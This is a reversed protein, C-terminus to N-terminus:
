HWAPLLSFTLLNFSMFQFFASSGITVFLFYSLRSGPSNKMQIIYLFVTGSKDPITKRKEDAKTLSGPPM